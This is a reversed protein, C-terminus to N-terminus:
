MFGFAETELDVQTLRRGTEPDKALILSTLLDKRQEKIVAADNKPSKLDLLRRRVSSSALVVCAKRGEFLSQIRRVPLKPLWKRLSATMSPWAGMASGLLTHAKVPPMQSDDESKQVGFSQSFALEFLVDVVYYHLAKKLDFAEGTEARRSIKEKLIGINKDLYQEMEKINAMSFSHSMHRRRVAHHSEDRTGFVNPHIGGFADYFDSKPMSKSSKQYIIAIAHEDTISIKGPGYRVIPGYKLHLDTLYYPQRLSLFSCVQSVDTLSALFPGPFQSLPHFLRQYAVYFALILVCLSSLMIDLRGAFEQTAHILAM